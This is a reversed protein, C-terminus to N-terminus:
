LRSTKGIEKVAFGFTYLWTYFRWVNQKGFYSICLPYNNHIKLIQLLMVRYLIQAKYYSNFWIKLVTFIHAPLFLIFNSYFGEPNTNSLILIIFTFNSVYFVFTTRRVSPSFCLLVVICCWVTCSVLSTDEVRFHTACPHFSSAVCVVFLYVLYCFYCCYLSVTVKSAYM